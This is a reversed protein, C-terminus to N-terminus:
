ATRVQQGSEEAKQLGEAVQSWGKRLAELCQSIDERVNKEERNQIMAVEYPEFGEVRTLYFAARAKSHFNGLYKLILRHQEADSLLHGPDVAHDDILVDEMLLAAFPQHYEREEVEPGSIGWRDESPARDELRIMRKNEPNQSGIEKDIANQVFRFLRRELAEPGDKFTATDAVNVLAQDVLDDPSLYDNPLEGALEAAMISERAFSYLPGLLPRLRAFVPNSESDGNSSALEEPSPLEAIQSAFEKYARKVGTRRRVLHDKRIRAKSRRLEKRLASEAESVLSRIDTSEKHIVIPHDPLQLSLTLHFVHNENGEQTVRARLLRDEPSYRQIRKKIGPLVRNLEYELRHRDRNDLNPAAIILKM